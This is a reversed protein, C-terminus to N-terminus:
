QAGPHPLNLFKRSASSYQFRPVAPREVSCAVNLFKRSASSYQFRRAAAPPTPDCLISSNEARQLTSFRRRRSYSKASGARLMSSNEARQLTSFRSGDWSMDSGDPISSNEARQLTSFCAIQVVSIFTLPISSNEARQLTSFGIRTLHLLHAELFQPIKPESFLVSVALSPNGNRTEKRNLFKRSASSYQFRFQQARPDPPATM